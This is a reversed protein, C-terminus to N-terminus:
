MTNKIKDQFVKIEWGVEKWNEGGVEKWNEGTDVIVDHVKHISIVQAIIWFARLSSPGSICYVPWAPLLLVIQKICGPNWLDNASCSFGDWLHVIGLEGKSLQLVLSGTAITSQLLGLRWGCSRGAVRGVSWKCCMRDRRRPWYEHM